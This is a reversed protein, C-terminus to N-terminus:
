MGNGVGVRESIRADLREIQQHMIEIQSKQRNAAFWLTMLAGCVMIAGLYRLIQTRGVDKGGVVLFVPGFTILAPMVAQIYELVSGM